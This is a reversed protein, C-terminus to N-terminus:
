AGESFRALLSAHIRAVQARTAQLDGQNDIVFDGRAAKEDASMQAAIRKAASEADLGDRNAVRAKQQEPSAKVVILAAFEADRGTEVLLTAEYLAYPHKEEALRGFHQQSLAAIRPHLISELRRRAAPDGFVRRGLKVRDLAGNADLFQEGFAEIVAALGETGPLVVERAVQDADVVPVGLGRFMDSVTSKGCGIGGTLGVVAFAVAPRYVCLRTPHLNVFANADDLAELECHARHYLPARLSANFDALFHHAVNM